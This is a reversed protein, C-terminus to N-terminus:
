RDRAGFMIDDWSPVSTRGKRKAPAAAAPEPTPDASDAAPDASDFPASPASRSHEASVDQALGDGPVDDLDDDGRDDDGGDDRDDDGGDDHDDVIDDEADEEDAPEEEDGLPGFFDALTADRPQEDDQDADYEADADVYDDDEDADYDADLDAGDAQDQASDGDEVDLDELEVQAEGAFDEVPTHASGPPPVEGTPDDGADDVAEPLASGSAPPGSQPDDPLDELPLLADAEPGSGPGAAEGTAAGARSGAGSESRRGRRGRARSRERMTTVLDVGGASGPALLAEAGGPLAQEDESLWRAEDDLAEITRGALEFRWAASRARNGAVFSVLVTWSGGEPRTSDWSALDPDVGRAALRERVRPGLTPIVGDTTRGRVHAAQAMGAVHEREALIPAEFKAVRDAPWGTEAAIEESSQGARMMAQVQRPSVQAGHKSGVGGSPPRVAARLREDIEVLIEQDGGPETFVLHKGDEHVAVFQLRM